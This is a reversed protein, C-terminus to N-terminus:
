EVLSLISGLFCCSFWRSAHKCHHLSGFQLVAVIRAHRSVLISGCQIPRVHFYFAALNASKEAIVAIVRREIMGESVSLHLDDLGRRPANAVPRGLVGLIIHIFVFNDQFTSARLEDVAQSAVCTTFFQGPEGLIIPQQHVSYFAFGNLGDDMTLLLLRGWACEASRRFRSFSGRACPRRYRTATPSAPLLPPDAPVSRRPCSWM